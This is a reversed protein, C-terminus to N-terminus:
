CQDYFVNFLFLFLGDRLRSNQTNNGTDGSSDLGELGALELTGAWPIDSNIWPGSCYVAPQGTCTGARQDEGNPVMEMM